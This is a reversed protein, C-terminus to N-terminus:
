QQGDQVPTPTGTEPIFATHGCWRWQVTEQGPRQAARGVHNCTPCRLVPKLSLCYYAWEEDFLEPTTTQRKLRRILGTVANIM